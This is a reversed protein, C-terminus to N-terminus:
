PDTERNYIPTEIAKSPPLTPSKMLIYEAQETRQYFFYCIIDPLNKRIVNCASSARSLHKLTNM